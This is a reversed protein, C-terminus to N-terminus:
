SSTLARLLRRIMALQVMALFNRALKEYRTGVRRAEKLWGVCREVVNRDRYAVRDFTRCRTQNSRTPIVAGIKHRRLWRRIRPYSYGKDAGLRKPRRRAVGGCRPIRIGDMTPEFLRSEHRQGPSIEVSLPVGNRDCVLHIKSGYGGRSRGLAHDEPETRGGKQRCRCSVSKSPGFHRRHVVTRSRDPPEPGTVAAAVGPDAEM